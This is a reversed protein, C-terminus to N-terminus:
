KRNIANAKLIIFYCANCIDCRKSGKVRGWELVKKVPCLAIMTKGPGSSNTM